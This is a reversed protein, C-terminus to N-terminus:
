APKRSRREKRCFVAHEDFAASGSTPPKKKGPSTSCLKAAAMTHVGHKVHLTKQQLSKRQKCLMRKKLWGPKNAIEKGAARNILLSKKLDQQYRQIQESGSAAALHM